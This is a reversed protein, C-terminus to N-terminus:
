AWHDIEVVANATGSALYLTLSPVRINYQEYVTNVLITRYCAAAAATNAVSGTVFGLRVAATRSFIRFNKCDARLAQEYETNVIVLKKNTLTVATSPRLYGM